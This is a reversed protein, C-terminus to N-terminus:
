ADRPGSPRTVVYCASAVFFLAVAAALWPGPGASWLFLVYGLAMGALALAKAQPLIAGHERWAVLSPGFRPHEVLWQEFRPSSRAFCAAALIVFITSPMVPLLAGLFALGLLLFGTSLFLARSMAPLIPLTARGHVPNRTRGTASAAKGRTKQPPLSRLGAPTKGSSRAPRPLTAAKIRLFDTYRLQM